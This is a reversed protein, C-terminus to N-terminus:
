KRNSINNFSPYHYRMDIEFIGKSTHQPPSIPVHLVNGIRLHSIIQNYGFKWTSVAVSPTTHNCNSLNPDINRQTFGCVVLQINTFQLEIQIMLCNSERSLLYLKAMTHTCVLYKIIFDLFVLCNWTLPNLRTDLIVQELNFIQAVLKAFKHYKILLACM